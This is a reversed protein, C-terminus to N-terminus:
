LVIGRPFRAIKEKMHFIYASVSLSVFKLVFENEQHAVPIQQLYVVISENSIVVFIIHFIHFRFIIQKHLCSNTCVFTFINM